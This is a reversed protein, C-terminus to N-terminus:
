NQSNKENPWIKPGEYSSTQDEKSAASMYYEDQGLAEPAVRQRKNTKMSVQESELTATPPNPAWKLNKGTSKSIIATPNTFANSNLEILATLAQM